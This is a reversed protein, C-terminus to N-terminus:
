DRDEVEEWRGKLKQKRNEKRKEMRKEKRSYSRDDDEGWEDEEWEERFKKFSKAM